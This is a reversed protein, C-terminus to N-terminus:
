AAVVHGLRRLLLCVAPSPGPSPHVAVRLWQPSRCTRQTSFENVADSSRKRDPRYLSLSRRLQVHQLHQASTGECPMARRRQCRQSSRPVAAALRVQAHRSLPPSVRTWRCARATSSTRASITTLTEVATQAGPRVNGRCGLRGATQGQAWTKQAVGTSMSANISTYQKTQAAPQPTALRMSSCAHITPPWVM